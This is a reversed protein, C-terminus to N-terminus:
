GGALEARLHQGMAQRVQKYEDTLFDLLESINAQARVEESPSLLDTVAQWCTFIRDERDLIDLPDKTM